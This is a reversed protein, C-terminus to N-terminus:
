EEELIEESAEAYRVELSDEEVSEAVLDIGKSGREICAERIRERNEIQWAIVQPSVDFSGAIEEDDLGSEIMRLVSEVPALFEAAFARGAAQREAQHLRNVM